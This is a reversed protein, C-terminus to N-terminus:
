LRKLYKKGNGDVFLVRSDQIAMVKLGLKFNVYEGTSYAKGNLIVKSDTKSLRVGSLKARSLWQIIDESPKAAAREAAEQKAQAELAAKEAVLKAQAAAEAEAAERAKRLEEVVSPAASEAQTPIATQALPVSPALPAAQTLETSQSATNNQTPAAQQTLTQPATTSSNGGKLLRVSLGVVLGILLAVAITLGILLNRNM